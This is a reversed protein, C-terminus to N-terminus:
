VCWDCTCYDFHHYQFHQKSRCHHLSSSFKCATQVGGTM